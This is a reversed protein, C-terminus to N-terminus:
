LVCHHIMLRTHHVFVNRNQINFVPFFLRVTLAAMRGFFPANVNM